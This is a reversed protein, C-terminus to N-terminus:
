KIPCEKGTIEKFAARLKEINEQSDPAIAAEGTPLKTKIALEIRALASGVESIKKYIELLKQGM